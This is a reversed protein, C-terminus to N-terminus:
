CEESFAVRRVRKKSKSAELQEMTDSGVSHNEMNNITTPQPEMLPSAIQFKDNASLCSSSRNTNSSRCKRSPRANSLLYHIRQIKVGETSSSSETESTLVTNKGKQKEDSKQPPSSFARTTTTSNGHTM